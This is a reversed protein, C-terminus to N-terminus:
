ALLPLMRLLLLLWQQIKRRSNLRPDTRRLFMLTSFVVQRKKLKLMFHFLIPLGALPLLYLFTSAGFIM